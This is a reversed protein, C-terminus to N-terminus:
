LVDAGAPRCTKIGIVVEEIREVSHRSPLARCAEIPVPSSESSVITGAEAAGNAVEDLVQAAPAESRAQSDLAHLAGVVDELHGPRGVPSSRELVPGAAIGTGMDDPSPDTSVVDQTPGLWGLAVATLLSGELRDLCLRM